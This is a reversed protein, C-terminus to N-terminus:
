SRRRFRWLGLFSLIAWPIPLGARKGASVACSAAPARAIGAEAASLTVESLEVIIDDTGSLAGDDAALRLVYTGPVSFTAWTSAAWPDEFSVTGPGDQRSWSVTLQDDPGDDVVGGDLYVSHEDWALLYDAGATVEPPANDLAVMGFGDITLDRRFNVHRGFRVRNGVNGEITFLTGGEVRTVIASHGYRATHIRVYDGAQPEFTSWVDDERSVWLDRSVFWERAAFNNQVQWGNEGGDFPVGAARYVWAVFDTCWMEHPALFEHLPGPEGNFRRGVRHPGLGIQARAIAVVEDGVNARHRARLVDVPDTLPVCTAGAAEFGSDCLCTAQGREPFCSGVGGCDVTRCAPQAEAATSWMLGSTLVLILWSCQM